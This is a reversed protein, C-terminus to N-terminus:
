LGHSRAYYDDVLEDVNALKVDLHKSVLRKEIDSLPFGLCMKLKLGYGRTEAPANLKLNEWGKKLLSSYPGMNYAACAMILKEEGGFKALRSSALIEKIYKASGILNQRPDKPDVGLGKATAPMLQGFGIAGVWSKTVNGKADKHKGNSEIWIIARFFDERTITEGYKNKVTPFDWDKAKEMAEKFWKSFDKSRANVGKAGPQSMLIPAPPTLADESDQATTESQTVSNKQSVDVPRSGDYPTQAFGAPAGLMAVLGCVLLTKKLM